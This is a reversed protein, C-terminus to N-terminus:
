SYKATAIRTSLHTALRAQTRAKAKNNNCDEYALPNGSRTFTIFLRLILNCDEYALPNGADPLVPMTCQSCNCDEYALPNGTVIPIFENITVKLQL